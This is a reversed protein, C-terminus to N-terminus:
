LEWYEFIAFANALAETMYSAPLTLAGGVFMSTRNAFFRLPEGADYSLGIQLSEGANFTILQINLFRDVNPINHPQSIINQATYGITWNVKVLKTPKLIGATVEIQRGTLVPTLKLDPLSASSSQAGILMRYTSGGAVVPAYPNAINPPLEPLESIKM